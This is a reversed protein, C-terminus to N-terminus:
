YASLWVTPREDNDDNIQHRRVSAPCHLHHQRAMPKRQSQRKNCKDEDDMSLSSPVRNVCSNPLLADCLVIVSDM